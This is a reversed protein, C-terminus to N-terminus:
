KYVISLGVRGDTRGEVRSVGEALKARQENQRRTSIGLSHIM